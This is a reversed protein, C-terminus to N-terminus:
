KNVAVTSKNQGAAKVQSAASESEPVAAAPGETQLEDKSGKSAKKPHAIYVALGAIGLVVAVSITTGLIIRLDDSLKDSTNVVLSTLVLHTERASSIKCSYTGQHNKTLKHLQLSRSESVGQVNKKWQDEVHMQPTSNTYTSTLIPVTHNFMWTLDFTMLDFHPVRCLITVVSSSSSNVPAELRLSATKNITGSSVTCINTQNKIFEKSSTINYLGKTNTSVKINGPDLDSPSNSSWTLKPEPYINTSSCTIIDDSLQIEVQQVLANLAIDIFSEKNGNVTSSYCKYRGKDQITVDRLLLSANGKSIQANFLATRQKYSQNQQELHDTNYYYSHVPLDQDELKVWHIVEDSGPQFRCPVICDESFVCTVQDEGHLRKVSLLLIVLSILGRSMISVQPWTGKCVM